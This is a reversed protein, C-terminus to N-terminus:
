YNMTRTRHYPKTMKSKDQGLLWIYDNINIRTVDANLKRYIYDIVVIDNARIEVEMESGSPILTLSDVLNSLEENFELMGLCRMVQPIKYDACGVLHSLDVTIHGVLKKVNLIDSTFLQAKKYFFVKRGKYESIDELYEFHDIIYDLLTVDDNIDKIQDYFDGNIGKLYERMRVFCDYREEVLPIDVNGKLMEKFEQYSMDYNMGNRFVDILAYILGFSGDTKQGDLTNLEWKPEGWFCCLGITHYVLLFNIIDRLEMDLLGFPNSEMWYKSSRIGDSNIIKDIVDYNIKVYSSNDSVYKVSNLIKEMVTSMKVSGEM